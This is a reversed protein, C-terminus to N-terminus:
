RDPRPRRSSRTRARSPASGSVEHEDARWLVALCRQLDRLLRARDRAPFDDLLRANADRRTPEISALAALGAPTIALWRRRGDEPDVEERLFGRAKLAAVVVSTTARSVGRARAIESPLVGGAGARVPTPFNPDGAVHLLVLWQQTTLGAHAALAEGRRQLHSALDFLALVIAADVSPALAPRASM